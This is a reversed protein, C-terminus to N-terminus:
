NRFPKPVLVPIRVAPAPAVAVPAAQAPAAAPTVPAPLPAQVVLEMPAEPSVVVLNAPMQLLMPAVVFPAFRPLNEPLVPAEPLIVPPPAEVIPVPVPAVPVPVIPVPVVTVPPLPAPAPPLPAIAPPAAPAPSAAPPIPPPPPAEVIPVPVPGIPVVIPPPLAPNVLVPPPPAPAPGPVAGAAVINATTMARGALPGCCQIALAYDNARAGALFFGNYSVAKANGVSATDFAATAGPGGLLSVGVPAGKLGSLTTATTGDFTKDGGDAFVLMHQTFPAGNGTAFFPAYDTPTLYSTANYIIDVPALGAPGTVTLITGAGIRVTGGAAGPGTGGIGGAITLGRVVGLAALDEGPVISGRTMTVLAAANFRNELVVDNAACILLNGDTITIGTLNKDPAPITANDRIVNVNRGAALLVSGNTVTLNANLNVDRGCCVVLNGKTATIERNIHVDNFANLTLTTPVLSVGLSGNWVVAENVIIDGLGPGPGGTTTIVVDTDVLQASLAAGSINFGAQVTFDVPDILWTGTRGSASATTVRASDHIKVHAASTEIFGGDGGNPASADLTGSLMATGSQMDGLLKITGNRNEITRAQIVGTNNVVTSLLDGAAQATMLVQGGDAQILGGNEALANVAGRDVRATLLGDGLLELTVAQGAALVVSGRRASIEGHNAVSAGLLAVSGGDARLAGENRVSARSAGEFRLNGAMLDSDTINLTSAVLGGVNVSAGRGFLIGNPNVLFVKGNASLNGHIASGDAGLVRNLAVSSTGPQVFRVSEGAAIGFSQWNIATSGTTQVITTTAGSRSIAAAGAAVAGGQPAAHAGVAFCLLVSAALPARSFPPSRGSPSFHNV